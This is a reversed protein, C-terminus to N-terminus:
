ETLLRSMFYSDIPKNEAECHNIIKTMMGYNNFINKSKNEGVKYNQKSALIYKEFSLNGLEDAIKFPSLGENLVIANLNNITYYQNMEGTAFLLGVKFLNQSKYKEDKSVIKYQQPKTQTKVEEIIASEFQPYNPTDKIQVKEIESLFQIILSFTKTLREQESRNNSFYICTEQDTQPELDYYIDYDMEGELDKWHIRQSNNYDEDVSNYCSEFYKLENNIFDIEEFDESKQLFSNLRIRYLENKYKKASFSNLDIQNTM